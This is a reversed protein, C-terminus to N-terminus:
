GMIGMVAAITPPVLTPSFCCGRARTTLSVKAYTTPRARAYETSPSIAPSVPVMKPVM